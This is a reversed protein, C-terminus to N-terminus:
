RKPTVLWGLFLGLGLAAFVTWQNAFPIFRTQSETVEVIGLPKAVLGGGGGGGRREEARSGSGGGFGYRVTAVPLVTKGAVSVPEGYVMRAGARDVMSRLVEPLQTHFETSATAGYTDQMCGAYHFLRLKRR